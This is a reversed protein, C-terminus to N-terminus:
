KYLKVIELTQYYEPSFRYCQISFRENRDPGGLIKIVNGENDYPESEGIVVFGDRTKDYEVDCYGFGTNSSLLRTEFNRASEASSIAITAEERDGSWNSVLVVRNTYIGKQILRAGHHCRRAKHNKLSQGLFEMKGEWNLFIENKYGEKSQRRSVVYITSDPLAVWSIENMIPIKKDRKYHQTFIEWTKGKDMSIVMTFPEVYFSLLLADRNIGKWSMNKIQLANCVLSQGDGIYGEKKNILKTLNHQPEPKSWTKGDDKSISRYIGTYKNYQRHSPHGASFYLHIENDIDAMATYGIVAEKDHLLVTDDKWTHGGDTSRAVVFTLGPPADNVGKVQIHYTSILTGTKERYLLRPEKTMYFGKITGEHTKDLAEKNSPLFRLGPYIVNGLSDHVGTVYQPAHEYKKDLNKVNGGALQSKSFHVRVTDLKNLVIKENSKVQINIINYGFADVILTNENRSSFTENNESYKWIVNGEKKIISFKYTFKGSTLPTIKYTIETGQVVMDKPLHQGKSSCYCASTHQINKDISFEESQIKSCLFLCGILLIFRNM